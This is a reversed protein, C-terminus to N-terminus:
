RRQTAFSTKAAKRRRTTIFLIRLVILEGFLAVAVAIIAALQIRHVFYDVVLFVPAWLFLSMIALGIISFVVFNVTARFWSFRSPRIVALLVTESGRVIRLEANTQQPLEIYEPEIADYFWSDKNSFPTAGVPQRQRARAISRDYRAELREQSEGHALNSQRRRSNEKV